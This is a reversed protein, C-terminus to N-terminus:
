TLADQKLAYPAMPPITFQLNFQALRQAVATAIDPRLPMLLVSGLPADNPSYIPYGMHTRGTRNIDEDVFFGLRDGLAAALWTASISTGFIGLPGTISQGQELLQYLWAIHVRAATHGSDEPLSSNTQDSLAPYRALLTLEKAVCWADLRFVEFGAKGVIRRLTNKNFHTCHDAILIDFPSTELDPVEVLLLGGPNMLSSLTKLYCIPDPIHELAHIMVILDFRTQLSEIPDVHLKTVGPISEILAQNRADLELGVMQWHPNRAGFARMFAGNGCGIDLLAGTNALAGNSQLWEVIKQSRASSAGTNQDFSAQEFGDGQIYVAYSAYIKQVERLWDETVPKQVTGCDVCYALLEEGKWPRCDSTVQYAVPYGDLALLQGGCIHCDPLKPM